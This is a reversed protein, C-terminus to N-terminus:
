LTLPRLSVSPGRPHLLFPHLNSVPTVRACSQKNAGFGSVTCIWGGCQSGWFHNGTRPHYKLFTPIPVGLVSGMDLLARHVLLWPLATLSSQHRQMFEVLCTGICPWLERCPLYARLAGMRQSLSVAGGCLLKQYSAIYGYDRQGM